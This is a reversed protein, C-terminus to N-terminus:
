EKGGLMRKLKQKAQHLRYRVTGPAMSFRLGLQESTYGEIEHLWLLTGDPEPLASLLMRWEAESLAAPMVGCEPFTDTVTERHGKRVRDIFRNKVTRFLWARVQKEELSALLTEHLIASFFADQVIDEASAKDETMGFAFRVLEDRFREFMQEISM